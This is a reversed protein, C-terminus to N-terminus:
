SISATTPAGTAQIEYSFKAVDNYPSTLKSSTLYGDVGYFLNTGVIGWTVYVKLQAFQASALQEFSQESYGASTSVPVNGNGTFKMSNINPLVEDWIVGNPGKSCKTTATIMSTSVDIDGDESCGVIIGNVTIAIDKGRIKISAM